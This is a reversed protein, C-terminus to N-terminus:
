KDLFFVENTTKYKCFKIFKIWLNHNFIVLYHYINDIYVIRSECKIFCPLADNDYSSDCAFISGGTLILWLSIQPKVLWVANQCTKIEVHGNIIIKVNLVEHTFETWINLTCKYNKLQCLQNILCRPQNGRKAIKFVIALFMHVCTDSSRIWYNQTHLDISSTTPDCLLKNLKSLFEKRCHSCGKNDESLM